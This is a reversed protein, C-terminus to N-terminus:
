RQCYRVCGGAFVDIGTRWSNGVQVQLHCHTGRGQQHVGYAPSAVHLGAARCECGQGVVLAARVGLQVTLVLHPPGDQQTCGADERLLGASVRNDEGSRALGVNRVLMCLVRNVFWPYALM